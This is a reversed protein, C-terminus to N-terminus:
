RLWGLPLNFELSPSEDLRPKDEPGILSNATWWGHLLSEAALGRGRALAAGDRRRRHCKSLSTVNTPQIM